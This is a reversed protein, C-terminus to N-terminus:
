LNKKYQHNYAEDYFRAQARHIAVLYGDDDLYGTGSSGHTGGCNTQISYKNIIEVVKCKEFVPRMEKNSIAIIQQGLYNKYNSPVAAHSKQITNPSVVILAIDPLKINNFMIITNSFNLITGDYLVIEEIKRVRNTYAWFCKFFFLFYKINRNQKLLIKINRNERLFNLLKDCFSKM